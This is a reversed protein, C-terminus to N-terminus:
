MSPRMIKVVVVMWKANHYVEQSICPIHTSLAMKPVPYMVWGDGAGASLVM